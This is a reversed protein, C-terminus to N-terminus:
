TYYKQQIEATSPRQLAPRVATVTALWAVAQAGTAVKAGPALEVQPAVL